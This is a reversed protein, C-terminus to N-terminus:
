VWQIPVITLILTKEIQVTPVIDEVERFANAKWAVDIWTIIEAV